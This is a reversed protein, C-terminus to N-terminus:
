TRCILRDFFSADHFRRRAMQRRPNPQHPDDIPLRLTRGSDRAPRLARRRRAARPGPGRPDAAARWRALAPHPCLARRRPRAHPRHVAQFASTSFRATTAAPKIASRKGVGTPGCLILNEHADIWAGEALKPVPLTLGARPATTSMRWPPLRTYRLPADLQRDRHYSAVQDLLLTLWEAHSLTAAEGSAEIEGFVKAM